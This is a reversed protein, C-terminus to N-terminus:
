ESSTSSVVKKPNHHHAHSSSANIKLHVAQVVQVVKDVQTKNFKPTVESSKLDTIKTNRITLLCITKSRILLLKLLRELM